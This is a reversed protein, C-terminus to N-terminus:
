QPTPNARHLAANAVTRGEIIIPSITVKGPNLQIKSRVWLKRLSNEKRPFFYGLDVAGVM